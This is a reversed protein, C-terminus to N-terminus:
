LTRLFAELADIEEPKLHRTRGMKGDSKRLLEGLSSYRGDHFYPGASGIQLLSPTNFARGSGVDHMKGDTFSAGSHCTSCQTQKSNFIKSGLVIKPDPELTAPTKGPMAKVYAVLADLEVGALGSGGLRKFTGDLHQQITRANGQWSFPATDGVRGALMISRRPGDPTASTIGDDRGDPHCSACARGDSSIRQDGKHFLVRGLALAAEMSDKPVSMAVRAVAKPSNPAEGLSIVSLTRDFQSWVIAQHKQPDVTIGTPGSGVKWRRLEATVPAAVSADYAVITDIGQCAVLLTKAKEDVVAARPLLCPTDDDTTREQDVTVAGGRRVLSTRIPNGNTEDIVAVSPIESEGAGSGYGESKEDVEGPDVLVEPAFVRGPLASSKALVFSQCSPLGDRLKKTQADIQKELGKREAPPLERADMKMAELDRPDIGAEGRLGVTQAEPKPKAVDVISFHSGVAHAVFVRKGDDSVVISRPERALPLEFRKAFSGEDIATLARGWGSAIYITKQDPSTGFSTPEAPVPISFTKAPGDLGTITVFSVEPKDKAAVLLRGDDLLMMTGPTFTLAVPALEIREDLDVRLISQTDEDSVLAVRKGALRAVIVTSSARTKAVAMPGTHATAAQPLKTGRACGVASAFAVLAVLAIRGPTRLDM